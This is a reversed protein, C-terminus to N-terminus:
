FLKFITKTVARKTGDPMLEYWEGDCRDYIPESFDEWSELKHSWGRAEEAIQSDAEMASNYWECVRLLNEYIDLIKSGGMGRNKRHHIVLDDTAGCHICYPDRKELTGRMFKNITM